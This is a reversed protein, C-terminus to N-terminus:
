FLMGQSGQILPEDCRLETHYASLRRVRLLSEYPTRLAVRQRRWLMTPVDQSTLFHVTYRATVCNSQSASAVGGSRCVKLSAPYVKKGAGIIPMRWLDHCLANSLV